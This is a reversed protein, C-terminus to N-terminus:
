PVLKVDYLVTKSVNHTKNQKWPSRLRHTLIDLGPCTPWWEAVPTTQKHNLSMWNNTSNVKYYREILHMHLESMRLRLEGAQLHKSARVREEGVQPLKNLGIKGRRRIHFLLVHDMSIPVLGDFIAEKLQSWLKHPHRQMEQATHNSYVTNQLINKM